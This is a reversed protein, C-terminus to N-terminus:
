ADSKGKEHHSADSPPLCDAPAIPKPIDASQEFAHALMPVSAIMAQTKTLLTERDVDGKQVLQQVHNASLRKLDTPTLDKATLILVPINKTAAKGRIKELVTFGDIGPMMLDLIIGDPITQSTYDMAEQGGRAVHVTHGVSELVAKVQIIAGENDEVLLIHAPRSTTEADLISSSSLGVRRCPANRESPVDTSRPSTSRESPLSSQTWVLPLSLTFTSGKGLVSEVSITGCLMQTAKYAIALGLGTGEHRRTSSGDAQRFEDFIYPIEEESIGIGTDSVQVEVHTSDSRVSVRVYGSDTFKVANGLLNQLIQSVRLEDSELDPLNQPIDQRIELNKEKALPIISELTDELLQRLSFPKPHVDMRGAEIKALDLIENILQLLNRGNREIIDLYGAEEASLKSKAQMTLVRSLAMVSNLPTRLEHSMNALFQSKLRSAEEVARQQRELEVNQEQVEEAQERLEETQAELEEQQAQLEENQREIREAFARIRESALVGNIRAAVLPWTDNVLRIGSKSYPRVSALSIVAIIGDDGPVPLTILECPQFTGGATVFSFRANEPIGALHQIAGTAVAVGFEGEPEKASFSSRGAPTLGISEYHDFATQPENLLYVAGMQSGTSSILGKLLARCFAHMEEERLMAEAIRAVTERSQMESEVTEALANFEASLTGFENRSAYRSRAKRDGGRFREAADSLEKLPKRINLLLLWLVMLAFFLIAIFVIGLQLDLSGHMKEAEQYFQKSRGSAYNDVIRLLENLEHVHDTDPGTHDHINVQKAKDLEGARLLRIVERRNERCHEFANRLNVVDYRPGLYQSLLVDFQTEASAECNQIIALLGEKEEPINRAFLEDMAWHITLFDARLNGIAKRVQHPHEYLQKTQSWLLDTQRSALGGLLVVLILIVGIALELQTKIKLDNLKM